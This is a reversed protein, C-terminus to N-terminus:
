KIKLSRLILKHESSVRYSELAKQISKNHTWKELKKFEIIKIALDWQKILADAFYWSIMMNIYYENSKISGVLDLYEEKFSENLYFKMLCLIGFRITYTHKSSIWNKISVLLQDKYKKDNFIKPVM